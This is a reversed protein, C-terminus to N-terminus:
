GIAAPKGRGVIHPHHVHRLRSGGNSLFLIWFGVYDGVDELLCQLFRSPERDRTGM